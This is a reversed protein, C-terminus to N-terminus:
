QWRLVSGFLASPFNVLGRSAPRPRRLTSNTGGGILTSRSVQNQSVFGFHWNPSFATGNKRRASPGASRRRNVSGRAHSSNSPAPKPSGRERCLAAEERLDRVLGM